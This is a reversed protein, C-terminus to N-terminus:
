LEVRGLLGTKSKEKHKTEGRIGRGILCNSCLSLVGQASSSSLNKLAMSPLSRWGHLNPQAREGLIGTHNYQLNSPIRLGSIEYWQLDQHHKKGTCRPPSSPLSSPMGIYVHRGVMWKWPNLSATLRLSPIHNKRLRPSPRDRTAPINIPLKPSFDKKWVHLMYVLVPRYLTGSLFCLKICQWTLFDSFALYTHQNAVYAPISQSLPEWSELVWGQFVQSFIWM